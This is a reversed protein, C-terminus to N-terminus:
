EANKRQFYFYKGDDKIRAIDEDFVCAKDYKPEVVIAGEKNIYGYKGGIKVDALTAVSWM